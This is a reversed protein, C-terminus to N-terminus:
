RRVHAAAVRGDHVARRDLALRKVLQAHGALDVGRAEHHRAEALGARPRHDLALARLLRLRLLTMASLLSIARFYMTAALRIAVSMDDTPTAAASGEREASTSDFAPSRTPLTM